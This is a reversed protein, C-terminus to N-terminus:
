TAAPGSGLDALPEGLLPALLRDLLALLLDGLQHALLPQRELPQHGVLDSVRAAACKLIASTEGEVGRDALAVEGGLGNTRGTISSCPPVSAAESSRARATVIV